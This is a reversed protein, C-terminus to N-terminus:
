STRDYSSLRSGTKRTRDSDPDALVTWAGKAVFDVSSLSAYVYTLTVEIGVYVRQSPIGVCIQFGDRFESLELVLEAIWFAPFRNELADNVRM